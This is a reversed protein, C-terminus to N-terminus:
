DQPRTTEPAMDQPAPASEDPVEGAETPPGLEGALKARDNGTIRAGKKVSEAM